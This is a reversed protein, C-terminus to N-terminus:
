ARKFWRRAAELPRPANRRAERATEMERMWAETERARSELENYHLERLTWAEARLDAIQRLREAYWEPLPVPTRSLIEHYAEAYVQATEAWSYKARLRGAFHNQRPADYAARVADHISRADGPDCLFCDEGFYERAPSNETMVLNCGAMGAEMASRGVQEWWSVMVHVKAAAYADALESPTMPELFHVNAGAEARCKALYDPETAQGIFVLPVTEQKWARVLQLSNKQAEVRAVSLVFDRANGIQAGFRQAFREADGHAFQEDIGNPAVRMKAPSTRLDAELLAAEMASKPFVREAADLILRATAMEAQEDLWQTLERRAPDQADMTAPNLHPREPASRERMLDWYRRRWYVPTVVVRKNERRAQVLYQLAVAALDLTYIHILDFPTLDVAPDNSVVARVGLPELKEITQALSMVDGGRLSDANRRTRFLVKLVTGM